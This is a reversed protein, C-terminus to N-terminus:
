EGTNEVPCSRGSCACSAGTSHPICNGTEGIGDPQSKCAGTCHVLAQYLSSISLLPNHSTNRLKLTRIAPNYSHVDYQRPPPHVKQRQRYAFQSLRSQEKKTAPLKATGAANRVAPSCKARDNDLSMAAHLPRRALISCIIPPTLPVLVVRAGGRVYSM